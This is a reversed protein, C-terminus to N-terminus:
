EPYGNDLWCMIMDLEEQTLDDKLSEPYVSNDPPMGISPSDKQNITRSEFSGNNLDRVIGSFKTYDGPGIGAGGDHCGSYACSEDIIPKIINSYTVTDDCEVESEELKDRSCSLVLMSTGLILVVLYLFNKMEHEM